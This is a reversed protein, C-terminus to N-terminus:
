CFYRIYCSYNNVRNRVKIKDAVDDTFPQVEIQAVIVEDGLLHEDQKLSSVSSVSSSRSSTISNTSRQQVSKARENLREINKGCARM